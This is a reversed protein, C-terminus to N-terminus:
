KSFIMFVYTKKYQVRILWTNRLLIILSILLNQSSSTKLYNNFKWSTCLIDGGLFKVALTERLQFIMTIKDPLSMIPIAKVPDPFVDTMRTNGSIIISTCSSSIICIERPSTRNPTIIQGDRSSAQKAFQYHQPHMEWKLSLAKWRHYQYANM